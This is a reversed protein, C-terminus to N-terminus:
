DKHVIIKQSKASSNLVRVFYVGNNLGSINVNMANDNVQTRVVEKGTIDSIIITTANKFYDTNDIIIYDGAPNPYTFINESPKTFISIQSSLDGVEIRREYIEHRNSTTNDSVCVIYFNNEDIKNISALPAGFPNNLYALSDSSFSGTNGWDTSYAFGVDKQTNDFLNVGERHEWSVGVFGSNNCEVKAFQSNKASNSIVTPGTWITGFDTSRQFYIKNNGDYTLYVYHTSTNADYAYTISPDKATNAGNTFASSTWTLGGDFSRAFYVKSVGNPKEKWTCLVTDGIAAVSAWSSKLGPTSLTNIAPLFAGNSYVTHSVTSDTVSDNHWVFHVKGNSAAYISPAAVNGAPSVNYVTDWNNGKDPSYRAKIYASEKWCIWITDSFLTITALIINNGVYAIKRTWTNAQKVNLFITDSNFYLLYRDDISNGAM